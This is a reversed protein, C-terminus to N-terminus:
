WGADGRGERVSSRGDDGVLKISFSVSGAASSIIVSGHDSLTMRRMLDWGDLTQHIVETHCCFQRTFEVKACHNQINPHYKADQNQMSSIYWQPTALRYM